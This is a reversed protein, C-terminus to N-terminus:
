DFGGLGAVYAAIDARQQETLRENFSPMASTPVGNTIITYIADRPTDGASLFIFEGNAFAPPQRVSKLFRAAPGVGKGEAGHCGTCERAYLSAGRNADGEPATHSGTPWPKNIRSPAKLTMLFAVIQKGEETLQPQAERTFLQRQAPMQSGHYIMDPQWFHAEHWQPHYRNAVGALDPGVPRAGGAQEGFTEVLESKLTSVSHCQWCGAHIYAAALEKNFPQEAQEPEDEAAPNAIFGAILLVLALAPFGIIALKQGSM